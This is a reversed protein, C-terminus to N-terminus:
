GIVVGVQVPSVSSLWFSFGSPVCFCPIGYTTSIAEMSGSSTGFSIGVTNTEPPIVSFFVSMSPITVEQPISTLNLTIVQGVQSINTIQPLNLNISGQGTNVIGQINVTTEVANM